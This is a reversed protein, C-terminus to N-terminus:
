KRLDYHDTHAPLFYNKIIVPQYCWHVTSLIWLKHVECSTICSLIMWACPFFSPCIALNLYNSCLPILVSKQTRTVNSAHVNTWPRLRARLKLLGACSSKNQLLVPSHIYLFFITLHLYCPGPDQHSSKTVSATIKM